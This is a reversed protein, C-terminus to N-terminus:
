KGTIAPPAPFFRKHHGRQRIGRRLLLPGQDIADSTRIANQPAVEAVFLQSVVFVLLLMVKLLQMFQAM